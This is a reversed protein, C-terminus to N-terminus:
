VSRGWAQLEQKAQVWNEDANNDPCGNLVHIRNALARIESETARRRSSTVSPNNRHTSPPQSPLRQISTWM